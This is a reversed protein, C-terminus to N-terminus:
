AVAQVQRDTGITNFCVVAISQGGHVAQPRQHYDSTICCGTGAKAQSGTERAHLHACEEKM